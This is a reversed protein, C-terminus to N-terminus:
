VEVFLLRVVVPKNPEVTLFIYDNATYGGTKEYPNVKWSNNITLNDNNSLYLFNDSDNFMYFTRNRVLLSTKQTVTIVSTELIKYGLEQILM